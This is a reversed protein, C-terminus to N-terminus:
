CFGCSMLNYQVAKRPNMYDIVKDSSFLAIIESLVLAVLNFSIKNGVKDLIFYISFYNAFHFFGLICFILM